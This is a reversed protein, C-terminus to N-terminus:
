RLTSSLSPEEAVRRLDTRAASTTASPGCTPGTTPAALYNKARRPHHVLSACSRGKTASGGLVLAWHTSRCLARHRIKTVTPTPYGIASTSGYALTPRTGSPPCLTRICSWALNSPRLLHSDSNDAIPFLHLTAPRRRRIERCIYGVDIITEVGQAYSRTTDHCYAMAAPHLTSTHGAREALLEGKVCVHYHPRVM